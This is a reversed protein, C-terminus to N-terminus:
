GRLRAERRRRDHSGRPAFPPDGDGVLRYSLARPDSVRLMAQDLALGTGLVIGLLDVTDPLAEQLRGVIWAGIHLLRRSLPKTAPSPSQEAVAQSM